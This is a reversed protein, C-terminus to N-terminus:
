WRPAAARKSQTGFSRAAPRLVPKKYDGGKDAAPGLYKERARRDVRWTRYVYWAHPCAGCSGKGCTVPRHRYRAAYMTRPPNAPNIPEGQANVLLDAALLCGFCAASHGWAMTKECTCCLKM